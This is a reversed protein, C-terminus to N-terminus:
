QDAGGGKDVSRPGMRTTKSKGTANLKDKSSGDHSSKSGYCHSRQVIAVSM